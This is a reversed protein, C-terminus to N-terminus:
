VVRGMAGALDESTWAEGTAELADAVAGHRWVAFRVTRGADAALAPQALLGGLYGALVDGSGGQALGPNGSSNVWVGKGSSGVLTHRGKLVVWPEMGPWREVLGALAAMRDKQVVAASMAGIRRDTPDSMGGAQLKGTKDGSVVPGAGDLMRAAEGPHPTVVREGARTGAEPLWDLASADVVVPCRAERWVRAMEARWAPSLSTSALGPGVVVATIGAGDWIEGAWSRVMPSQLSAAVPLYCREDAVVSVLGPRARLAGRAALVAAGHYGASGAVIAVHGFTGKHASELRRPPYGVFDEAVIWGGNSPADEPILGIDSVLELRGVYRASQDSLLGRKVAGLTVTWAAQVVEGMPQGTDADLGSPVDVALVPVGAHNIDMVLQAWPGDLPRNLGIGFLGDLILADHRGRFRGLWARAHTFSEPDGLRLCAVERGELHRAAVEADDGNHGRGALVLIPAGAGTMRRAVAAVAQGAREIVSTPSVGNAWTRRERDRMQAVSVIPAPM